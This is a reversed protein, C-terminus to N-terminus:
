FWFNGTGVERSSVSTTGLPTALPSPSCRPAAGKKKLFNNLIKIRNANNRRVTYCTSPVTEAAKRMPLMSGFFRRLPESGNVVSHGSQGVRSDFELDGADIAINDCSLKIQFTNLVRTYFTCDQYRCPQSDISLFTFFYDINSLEGFLLSIILKSPLKFFYLIFFITISM